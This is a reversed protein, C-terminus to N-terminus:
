RSRINMTMYIRTSIALRQRHQIVLCKVQILCLFVLLMVFAPLPIDCDMFRLLPCSMTTLLSPSCNPYTILNTPNGNDWVLVYGSDIYEAKFYSKNEAQKSREAKLVSIVKEQVFLVRTSSETKTGKVVEKSGAMTRATRVYILKNDFGSLGTCEGRRLGFYAALHVILELRHGKILQFLEKLQEKTYFHIDKKDKKFVNVKDCPNIHIIDQKVALKLATNLLNHHKITTNTSLGKEDILYAYYKQIETAKLEQVPTKGMFSNIYEITNNYGYLTTEECTHKRCSENLTRVM